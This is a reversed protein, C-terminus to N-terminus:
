RQGPPERDPLDGPCLGRRSLSGQVSVGPISVGQVSVRPRLTEPCLVGPCLGGSLFGGPYLGGPCLRGSGGLCLGEQVSVGRSPSGRFLSSSGGTLCVFVQSFMVKAFKMQPHYFAGEGGWWVVGYILKMSLQTKTTLTCELGQLLVGIGRWDAKSNIDNNNSNVIVHKSAVETTIIKQNNNPLRHSSM